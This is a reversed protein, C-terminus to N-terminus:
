LQGEVDSCQGSGIVSLLLEESAAAAQNWSMSQARARGSQGMIELQDVDTLLQTCAESVSEHSDLPVLRGTVGDEVAERQGVLDGVIVPKGCAAAEVLTLPLGEPGRSLMLFVDCTRYLSVLEAGHREGAFLVRDGIGLENALDGLRDRDPGDGVIVYVVNAVTKAIEPLARIVTDNGKREVLRSVSLLVRRDLLQAALDEPPGSPSPSFVSDDVGLRVVHVREPDPTSQIIHDRVANSNGIIGAAHKFTLRSILGSFRGYKGEIVPDGSNYVEVVYPIGRLRNILYGVFGLNSNGCVVARVDYQNCLRLAPFLMSVARQLMVNTLRHLLSSRLRSFPGDGDLPVRHVKLPYGPEHRNDQLRDTLVIPRVSRYRGTMELRVKGIGDLAPAQLTNCLVLVAPRNDHTTHSKSSMTDNHAM